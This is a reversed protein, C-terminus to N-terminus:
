LLLVGSKTRGMEDSSFFLYFLSYLSLTPYEEICIGRTITANSFSILFNM